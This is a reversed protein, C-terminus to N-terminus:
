GPIRNVSFKQCRLNEWKWYQLRTGPTTAQNEWTLCWGGDRVTPIGENNALPAVRWLYSDDWSFTRLKPYNEGSPASLAFLVNNMELLMAVANKEPYYVLQWQQNPNALNPNAAYCFMDPAAEIAMNTSIFQVKPVAILSM